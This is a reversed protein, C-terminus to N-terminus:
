VLAMRQGRDQALYIWDTGGWQIDRLDMTINDEWRYRLKGLPRKGETKAVLVM